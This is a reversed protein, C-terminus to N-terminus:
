PTVSQRLGEEWGNQSIQEYEIDSQLRNTWWQVLHPLTKM